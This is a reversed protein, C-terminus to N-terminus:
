QITTLLEFRLLSCTNRIACPRPLWSFRMLSKHTWCLIAREAPSLGAPTLALARYNPHCPPPFGIFQLHAFAPANLPPCARRPFLLRAHHSKSAWRCTVTLTTPSDGPRLALSRLPPGSVDFGPLSLGGESSSLLIVCRLSASPVGAPHYRRCPSSSASLLQLLGGRGPSFDASCLYATYGRSTPQCALPHRLPQYYWPLRTVGTSPLPGATLSPLLPHYLRRSRSRGHTFGSCLARYTQIVRAPPASIRMFAPFAWQVRGGYPTTPSNGSRLSLSRM